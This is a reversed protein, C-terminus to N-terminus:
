LFDGSYTHNGRADDADDFFLPDDNLINAIDQDGIVDDDLAIASPDDDVAGGGQHNERRPPPRSTTPALDDHDDDDFAAAHHDDPGQQPSQVDDLDDDDDDFDDDLDDTFFDDDDDDVAFDDPAHEHDQHDDDGAASSRWGLLLRVNLTTKHHDSLRKKKLIHLARALHERSLQDDARYGFVAFRFGYVKGLDKQMTVAADAEGLNKAALIDLATTTRSVSERCLHEIQSASRHFDEPRTALASAMCYLREGEGATAAALREEDALGTARRAAREFAAKGNSFLVRSDSSLSLKAQRVAGARLAGLAVHQAALSFARGCAIAADCLHGEIVAEEEERQQQQQQQQQSSNNNNNDHDDLPRATTRRSDNRRNDVV